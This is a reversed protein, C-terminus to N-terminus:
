IIYIPIILLYNNGTLLTTSMKPLDKSNILTKERTQYSHITWLLIHNFEGKKLAVQYENPKRDEDMGIEDIQIQAQSHHNNNNSAAPSEPDFM